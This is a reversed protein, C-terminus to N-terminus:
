SIEQERRMLVAISGFIGSHLTKSDYVRIHAHYIGRDRGRQMHIVAMNKRVTLSVCQHHSRHVLLPQSMLLTLPFETCLKSLGAITKVM